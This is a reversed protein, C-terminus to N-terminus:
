GNERLIRKLVDQEMPSLEEGYCALLLRMAALSGTDMAYARLLPMPLEEEQLVSLLVGMAEDALRDIDMLLIRRHVGNDLVLTMHQGLLEYLDSFIVSHVHKALEQLTTRGPAYRRLMEAVHGCLSTDSVFRTGLVPQFVRRVDATRIPIAM